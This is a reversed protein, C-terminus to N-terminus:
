SDKDEARIELHHMSINIARVAKFLGPFPPPYRKIRTHAYMAITGSTHEKGGAEEVDWGFARVRGTLGAVGQIPLVVPPTDARSHGPTATHDHLLRILANEEEIGNRTTRFSRRLGVLLM